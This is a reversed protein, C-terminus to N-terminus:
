AKYFNDESEQRFAELEPNCDSFHKYPNIDVHHCIPCVVIIGSHYNMWMRYVADVTANDWVRIVKDRLRLYTHRTKSKM